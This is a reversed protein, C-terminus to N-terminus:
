CKGDREDWGNELAEILISSEMMNFHAAGPVHVVKGGTWTLDTWQESPQPVSKFFGDEAVVITLPAGLKMTWERLRRDMKLPDAHDAAQIDGLEILFKATIAIFQHLFTVYNQVLQSVSEGQLARKLEAAVKQRSVTPERSYAGLLADTATTTLNESARRKQITEDDLPFIFPSSYLTPFHDLMVLQSVCDGSDRLLYAVEFALLSCGSYGGLRYPGSPRAAKIKLFYFAAMAQLSDMPCEPTHQIAWLPTNFREQLPIFSVINGSAGHILILPIGEGQVLKVVTQGSQNLSQWNFERDVASEPLQSPLDEKEQIRQELDQLTIDALLQLQSIQLFPRLSYSLRGASLSDLGYSTFPMDASFDAEDVDLHKRVIAHLLKKSTASEEETNQAVEYVLHNYMPSDGFHEKM